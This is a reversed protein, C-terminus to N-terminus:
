YAHKEQRDIGIHFHESTNHFRLRFTPVTVKATHFRFRLKNRNWFRILITHCLKSHLFSIKEM